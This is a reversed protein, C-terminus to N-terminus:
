EEVKKMRKQEQIWELLEKAKTHDEGEIELSLTIYQEAKEYDVEVGIGKAYCRGVAELGEFDGEQASQLYYAVAQEQDEEVGKGYCYMNGLLTKANSDGAQIAEEYCKVALTYDEEVGYGNEYCIGLYRKARKDGQEAAKQFWVVAQKEDEEVGEGYLYKIGLVTQARGYGHEASRKTWSLAQEEDQDVGIGHEYCRAVQLQGEPYENQAAKQYWYFARELHNKMGYSDKAFGKKDEYMEALCVQAYSEGRKAAEYYLHVAEAENKEVGWGARYCRALEILAPIYEEQASEQFYGVAKKYDKKIIGYLYCRGLYYGARTAGGEYAMKYLEVAREINKTVGKGVEYSYGLNCAAVLNGLEVSQEMLWIAKKIDEEVGYGNEYCWALNCIGTSDGNQAAKEFYSVAQQKEEERKSLAYIGMDSWQHGSINKELIEEFESCGCEPCISPKEQAEEIYSCVKGKCKYFM